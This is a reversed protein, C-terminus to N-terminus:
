DNLSEKLYEESTKLRYIENTYKVDYAYIQTELKNGNFIANKGLINEIETISISTTGALDYYWTKLREDVIFHIFKVVEQISIIQVKTDRSLNLPISNEIDYIIGKTKNKGVVMGLRIIIASKNIYKFVIHEAIHKNKGYINNKNVDLSSLYIYHDHKFDFFSNFTSTCNAMFDYKPDKIALYRKSNGNANIFVEFYEGKLSDYNEKTIGIVTHNISLNEVLRKGIFGNAGLVGIKM